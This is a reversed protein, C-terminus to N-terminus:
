AERCVLSEVRTLASGLPWPIQLIGPLGPYIYDSDGLWIEVRDGDRDLM